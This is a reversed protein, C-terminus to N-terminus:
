WGPRRRSTRARGARRLGRLARGVAHSAGIELLVDDPLALVRGPATRKKFEIELRGAIAAILDARRLCDDCATM